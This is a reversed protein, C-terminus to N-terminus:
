PWRWPGSLSAIRPDEADAPSREAHAWEDDRGVPGREPRVWREQGAAFAGQENVLYISKTYINRKVHKMWKPEQWITSRAVSGAENWGVHFGRFPNKSFEFPRLKLRPATDQDDAKSSTQFTRGIGLKVSTTCAEHWSEPLQLLCMSSLIQRSDPSKL